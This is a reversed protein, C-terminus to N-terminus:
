TVRAFFILGMVRTRAGMRFVIRKVMKTGPVTATRIGRQSIPLKGLGCGPTRVHSPASMVRIPAAM